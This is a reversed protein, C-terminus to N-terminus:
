SMRACTCVHLVFSLHVAITYRLAYASHTHTHIFWKIDDTCNTHTLTYTHAIWEHKSLMNKHMQFCALLCVFTQADRRVKTNFIVLSHFSCVYINTDVIIKIRFLYFISSHSYRLTKYADINTNKSYFSFSFEHISHDFNTRACFFCFIVFVCM